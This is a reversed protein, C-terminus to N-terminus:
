RYSCGWGGSLPFGDTQGQCLKADRWIGKADRSTNWHCENDAVSPLHLMVERDLQFCLPNLLCEECGVEGWTFGTLCRICEAGRACPLHVARDVAM